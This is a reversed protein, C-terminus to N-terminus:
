LSIIKLVAKAAEKGKNYRQSAQKRNLCTLVGNGIPKKHAVSLDMLSNTIAQSIFNFHPTQGKIICGLAIAGSSVIIVNKKKNKLDKIDLAFKELWTRRVKKKADILLSSGVKIVITKYNKLYM